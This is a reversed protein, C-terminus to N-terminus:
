RKIRGTFNDMTHYIGVVEGFLWDFVATPLL